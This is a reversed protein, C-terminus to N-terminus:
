EKKEPMAPSKLIQGTILGLITEESIAIHEAVEAVSWRDPGPKFKWQAESLGQLSDLFKKRTDELYAVAAKREADSLTSKAPADSQTQALTSLSLCALMFFVVLTLTLLFNRKM